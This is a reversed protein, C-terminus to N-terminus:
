FPLALHLLGDNSLNRLTVEKQTIDIIMFDGLREYHRYVRGNIIALPVKEDYVIGELVLDQPRLAAPSVPVPASTAAVAAIPRAAMPKTTTTPKTKTHPAIAWFIGLVSLILLVAAAVAINLYLNKPRPKTSVLRTLTPANHIDPVPSLMVQEQQRLKDATLPKQTEIKKLDEYIISMQDGEILV